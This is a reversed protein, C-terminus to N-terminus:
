LTYLFSNLKNGERRRVSTVSCFGSVVRNKECFIKPEEIKIILPKPMFNMCISIYYTFFFFKSPTEFRTFAEYTNRM